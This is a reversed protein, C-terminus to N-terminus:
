LRASLEVRLGYDRGSWVRGVCANEALVHEIDDGIATFDSTDAHSPLVRVTLTMEQDTTAARVVIKAIEVGAVARIVLRLATGAADLSEVPIAHETDDLTETRIGVRACEDNIRDLLGGIARQPIDVDKSLTTRVLVAAQRAISRARDQDHSWLDAVSLLAERTRRHVDGALQDREHEIATVRARRIAVARYEALEAETKRLRRVTAFVAGFWMGYTAVNSLVTPLANRGARRLTSVAYTGMAFSLLTVSEAPDLASAAVGVNFLSLTYIWDTEVGFCDEPRVTRCTLAHLATATVSDCAAGARDEVSAADWNRRTSWVTELACCGWLVHALAPRTMRRRQTIQTLLGGAVWSLRAVLFARTFATEPRVARDIGADTM